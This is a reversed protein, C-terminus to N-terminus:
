SEGEIGWKGKRIGMGLEGRMGESGCGEMEGIAAGGEQTGNGGDGGRLFDFFEAGVDGAEGEFLSPKQDVEEM